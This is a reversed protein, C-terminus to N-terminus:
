LTKLLEEMLSGDSTWRLLPSQGEAAAGTNVAQPIWSPAEALEANAVFDQFSFDGAACYDTQFISILTALIGLPAPIHCGTFYSGAKDTSRSLSPRVWEQQDLAAVISAIM